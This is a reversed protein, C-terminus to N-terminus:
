WTVVAHNPHPIRLWTSHYVDIVHDGSCACWDTLQVRVGNVFVYRGRWHGLAARLEPGAAAYAGSAPFGRTCVSVGPECFWTAVGVIRHGGTRSSGGGPPVKVPKAQAIQHVEPRPRHSPEPTALPGPISTPDVKATDARRPAEYTAVPRFGTVPAVVSPPEAGVNGSLLGTLVVAGIVQRIRRTVPSKRNLRGARTRTEM